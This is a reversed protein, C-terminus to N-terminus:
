QRTFQCGGAWKSGAGGDPLTTGGDQTVLPCQYENKGDATVYSRPYTGYGTRLTYNVHAYDTRETASVALKMQGGRIFRRELCACAYPALTVTTTAATKDMKYLPQYSSLPASNTTHWARMADGRFALTLPDGTSVTSVPYCNPGMGADPVTGGDPSGGKMDGDCFTVDLALGHPTGGDALNQVQWQVLWASDEPEPLAPLQYIYTDVDSPVADYDNPGRVGLGTVRDNPRLRGYGHSLEGSVAFASDSGPAPLSGAGVSALTLAHPQEVGGSYASVEATDEADWVVELKYDRDEAWRKTERVVFVYTISGGHGPVPIAGQFNSLGPFRAPDAESRSSHVCMAQTYANCYNEVLARASPNESYGKPCAVPDTVCATRQAPLGTGTVVQTLVLVERDPFVGQPLPLPEFRGSNAGGSQPVVRYRLVSPASASPLRVAYWDADATYGLRGTFTLTAGVSGPTTGDMTLLTAREAVDNDGNQDQKDEEDMVRVEVDYPQRLDGQPAEKDTGAQYGKVVLTWTGPDKVKRATALVGPHVKPSVQDESEKGLAGPRRLEYSLRYNPMFGQDPATVRVYAIKGATLPFSYQDVDGQTSLYGHQTGVLVAGQAALPIATPTTDNPENTDPDEVVEVTLRYPNRADFNPRSPNSPSDQVLLLLRTGGKAYPLIIDVPQPQGQGPVDKKMVLSRDKGDAGPELLNLTLNVATSSALYAGTIHVLTRANANAPITISYWDQDGGKVDGELALFRDLPQGPKLECDPLTLAEDRSNCLDVVTPNEPPPPEGGGSSCAAALLLAVPLLRAHTRM